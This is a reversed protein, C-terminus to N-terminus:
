VPFLLYCDASETTSVVCLQVVPPLFSIQRAVVFTSYASGGWFSNLMYHLLAWSHVVASWRAPVHCGQRLGGPLGGNKRAISCVLPRHMVVVVVVDVKVSSAVHINSTTEQERLRSLM